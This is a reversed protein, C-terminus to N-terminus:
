IDDDTRLAAHLQNEIQWRMLADADGPGRREGVPASAYATVWGDSEVQGLARVEALTQATMEDTM